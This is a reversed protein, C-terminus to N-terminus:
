GSDQRIPRYSVELVVYLREGDALSVVVEDDVGQKLLARAVPADMSIYGRAVDFEDPGVIRYVLEKGESDELRVWAGFFIRSTDSPLDCVM